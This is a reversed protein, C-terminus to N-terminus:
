TCLGSPAVGRACLPLQTVSVPQWGDSDAVAVLLRYGVISDDQVGLLDVAVTASSLANQVSATWVVVTQDAGREGLFADAVAAAADEASDFRASEDLGAPLEGTVVEPAGLLAINTREVWGQIGARRIQWWTVGDATEFAEGLLDVSEDATLEGAVPQEAGPLARVRVTDDVPVGILVAEARVVPEDLEVSRGELTPAPVPTPFERQEGTREDDGGPSADDGSCGGAVLM